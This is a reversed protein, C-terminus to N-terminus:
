TQYNRNMLRRMSLRTFAVDWSCCMERMDTFSRADIAAVPRPLSITFLVPGTVRSCCVNYLSMGNGWLTGILSTGGPREVGGLRRLSGM